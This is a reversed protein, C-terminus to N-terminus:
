RGTRCYVVISRTKDGGTLTDIKHMGEDLEGVPVNVAGEIHRSEFEEPSRVDLLLAGKAVLRHALEPDRDQLGGETAPSAAAKATISEGCAMSAALIPMVCLGLLIASGM